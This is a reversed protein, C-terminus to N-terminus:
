FKVTFFAKLNYTTLYYRYSIKTQINHKQCIIVKLAAERDKSKTTAPEFKELTPRINEFTM